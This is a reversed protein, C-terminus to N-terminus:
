DEELSRLMREVIDESSKEEVEQVIGYIFQYDVLFYRNDPMLEVPIRERTDYIVRDDRKFPYEISDNEMKEPIAVIRGTLVRIKESDPLIIGGLTKNLDEDHYILVM